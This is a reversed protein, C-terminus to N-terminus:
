LIEMNLHDALDVTSGRALQVFPETTTNQSTATMVSTVPAYGRIPNLITLITQPATAENITTPYVTNITSRPVDTSPASVSTQVNEMKLRKRVEDLNSLNMVYSVSRKLRKLPLTTQGDTHTGTCTSTTTKSNQRTKLEMEWLTTSSGASMMANKRNIEQHVMSNSYRKQRLLRSNFTPGQGCETWM